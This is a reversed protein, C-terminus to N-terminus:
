MSSCPIKGKKFPKLYFVKKYLNKRFIQLRHGKGAGEKLKIGIKYLKISGRGSRQMGLVFLVCLSDCTTELM